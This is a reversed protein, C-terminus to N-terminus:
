NGMNPALTLVEIIDNVAASRQAMTETKLNIQLLNSSKMRWIASKMRLNDLLAANNFQKLPKFKYFPVKVIPM